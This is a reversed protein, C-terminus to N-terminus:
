RINDRARRRFQQRQKLATRRAEARQVSERVSHTDGKSQDRALYEALTGITPFRFLDTLSFEKDIVEGLRYYVQVLLLSHGGLEFFNDNVGVKGTNLVEQWTTQITRQLENKPAVYVAETKIGATKPAPLAQRDVKQNPTLPLKELIIFYSPVMFDPLKEKVYDRLEGTTVKQTAEPVIYATLRKDDPTDERALVVAERVAPHQGLLTEIEGLEIRNGRIKVQFDLRGLYEINGDPLYRTLDGTRYLRVGPKGGFPDPIFKEATLEPRNLYGRAVQVGGIYLEGPVGVPVPQRYRDLIYLQTNAVPRGIPVIKLNSDQQCEWYTVDVAAETPGYLNHLRANLRRFFRNQLEMTLAEGSCIVQRLSTCREVDKAM